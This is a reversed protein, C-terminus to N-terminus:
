KMLLLYYSVLELLCTIEPRHCPNPNWCKRYLKRYSEVVPFAECNNKEPKFVDGWKFTPPEEFNLDIENEAALRRSDLDDRINYTRKSIFDSTNIKVFTKGLPCKDSVLFTDSSINSSMHPMKSDPRLNKRVVMYIIDEARGNECYPVKGNELEWMTIALAYIDTAPSVIKKQLLEPAMYIITGCIHKVSMSTQNAPLRKSNGFDCLKVKFGLPGGVCVM